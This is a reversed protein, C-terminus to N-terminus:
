IQLDKFTTYTDEKKIDTEKVLVECNKKLKLIGWLSTVKQIEVNQTQPKVRLGVREEATTMDQLTLPVGGWVAPLSQHSKTFKNKLYHKEDNNKSNQFSLV